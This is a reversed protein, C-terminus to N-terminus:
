TQENSRTDEHLTEEAADCIAHKIESADKRKRWGALGRIRVADRWGMPHGDPDDGHPRSLYPTYFTWEYVLQRDAEFTITGRIAEVMLGDKRKKLPVKTTLNITFQQSM